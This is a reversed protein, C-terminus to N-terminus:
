NLEIRQSLNNLKKRLLETIELATKKDPFTTALAQVKIKRRKATEFFSVKPRYAKV